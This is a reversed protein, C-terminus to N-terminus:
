SISNRFLLKAYLLITNMRVGLRDLANLYNVTYTQIFIILSSNLSTSFILINLKMNYLLLTITM